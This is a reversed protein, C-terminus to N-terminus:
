AKAHVTTSRYPGAALMPHGTQEFKPLGASTTPRSFPPVSTNASYARSRTGWQKHKEMVVCLAIAMIAVFLLGFIWDNQHYNEEFPCCEMGCCVENDGCSWVMEEPQSGNEFRLKSLLEDSAAVSENLPVETGNQLVVTSESAELLPWADAENVQSSDLSAASPDVLKSIPMRCQLDEEVPRGHRYSSHVFFYSRGMFFYPMHPYLIPYGGYFHYFNNPRAASGAFSTKFAATNAYTGPRLGDQLFRPNRNFTRFAGSRSASSGFASGFFGGGGRGGARGVSSRAASFGGRFGGFGGKADVLAFLSCLLWSFLVDFRM